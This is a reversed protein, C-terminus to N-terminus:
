LQSRRCFPRDYNDRTVIEEWGHLEEEISFPKKDLLASKKGELKKKTEVGATIKKM